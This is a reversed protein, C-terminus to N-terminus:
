RQILKGFLNRAGLTFDEIAGDIVSVQTFGHEGLIFRKRPNTANYLELAAVADTHAKDQLTNYEALQAPYVAFASQYDQEDKIRAKKVWDRRFVRNYVFMSICKHTTLHFIVLMILVVVAMVWGLGFSRWFGLDTNAALAWTTGTVAVGTGIYYDQWGDEGNGGGDFFGDLWWPSVAMMIMSMIMEGLSTGEFATESERVTDRKVPFVPARLSSLASHSPGLVSPLDNINTM